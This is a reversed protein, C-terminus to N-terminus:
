LKVFKRVSQNNNHKIQLLYVGTALETCDYTFHHTGVQKYGSYVQKLYTGQLNSLTISTNGGYALKYDIHLNNSVPNPLLILHYDPKNINGTGLWMEQNEMAGIDLRNGYIRPNGAIDLEPLILGTTDIIGGNVAPSNNSPYFDYGYRSEFIPESEITGEEWEVVLRHPKDDVGGSPIINDYLEVTAWGDQSGGGAIEWGTNDWFISNYVYGSALYLGLGFVGNGLINTNYVKTIWGDSEIGGLSNGAIISNYININTFESYIGRGVNNLIQSNYISVSASYNSIGSNVNGYILADSIITKAEESNYIGGGSIAVNNIIDVNNLSATGSGISIGGGFLDSYNGEINLDTLITTSSGFSLGGGWADGNTTYVSNNLIKSNVLSGGCAYFIIGGGSSSCDFDAALIRNNKVISFSVYPNSNYCYIGGGASYDTEPYITNDNITCNTITADSNNIYVGAGYKSAHNDKVITNDITPDAGNIYLGGGKEGAGNQVTFGCLKATSDEGSVISVVSGLSDGDIITQHIYNTDSTTIYKSAVVINKGFFNIREVYTGTDVLVTDVNFAANIAEQITIFDEPVHILGKVEQNELAGMDIRNGFVRPNGAIDFQPLNLGTTDLTGANVCPSENSPYYDYGFLSEFLPDADINGELFHAGGTAGGIGEPKINCYSLHARGFTNPPEPYQLYVDYPSNGWFICNKAYIEIRDTPHVGIYIGGHAGSNNIMTCNILSLDAGCYIASGLSGSGGHNSDFVSNFFTGGLSLAGAGISGSNNKIYLNSLITETSSKIYIGGGHAASNDTITLYKLEANGELYIGGGAYPGGFKNRCKNNEITSHLIKGGQSSIYIGGGAGYNSINNRIHCNTITPNSNVIRIGGGGVTDAGNQVTFGCLMTTSDEGNIITVVSGLSDGDIITQNIYNTDLTTLYKSAVVINKGIFNIREVYTGTDVLVTDGNFAANIAEQITIFDEPVHILGKVEQNELAGMDIRNGYIRPNGAIDFQPLNLGTTDLTGANVCPSENSPYYDYGFRSEFIPDLEINGISEIIDVGEWIGNPEINNYFLRFNPGYYIGGIEIGSNGWIISNYIDVSVSSAEYVIIGHGANNCVTSNILYLPGGWHFLANQGFNNTLLTNYIFNSGWSSFGGGKPSQNSKIELNNFVSNDSWSSIGGGYASAYNGYIFLDYFFTTGDDTYIGGGFGPFGFNKNNLIQSNFLKGGSGIICIGGGFSSYSENTLINKEVVCDSIVPNSDTCYIGGGKQSAHNNSIKSYEIKPSSNIIRIGGGISDAGNQITFGSLLTTSDEGSVISIVSGLSDGDIITQNIYNTDLTTLYKSAVTINKGTFNIREIYTGTDVLVTDGDFAADIGLQITPYDVPIHIIQSSVSISLMLLILLQIL